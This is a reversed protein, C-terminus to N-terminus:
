YLLKGPIMSATTKNSDNIFVMPYIFVCTECGDKYLLNSDQKFILPINLLFFM